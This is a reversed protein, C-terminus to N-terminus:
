DFIIHWLINDKVEKKNEKNEQYDESLLKIILSFQFKWTIKKEEKKNKKLSSIFELVIIKRM